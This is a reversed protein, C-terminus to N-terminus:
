ESFPLSLVFSKARPMCILVAYLPPWYPFCGCSCGCGTSAFATAVLGPEGFRALVRHQAAEVDVGDRELAEVASYLHDRLESEVDDRRRHWSIRSRLGALYDDILHYGAM